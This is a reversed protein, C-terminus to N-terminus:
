ASQDLNQLFTILNHDTGTLKLKKRLRTRAVDISKANQHTIMSIEKTTMNLKLFICLRRESPTLDPFKENLTRCFEKHILRFRLEFEQWLDPQLKSQLEAAVKRLEDPAQPGLSEKIELLKGSVSGILENKSLLHVINAALENNKEVLHDKLKEKELMLHAQRVKSRAFKVRQRLCSVALVLLLVLTFVSLLPTPYFLLISEMSLGMIFPSDYFTADLQHM